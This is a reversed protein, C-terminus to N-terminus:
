SRAPSPCPTVDAAAPATARGAFARNLAAHLILVVAVSVYGDILYHWGLLASTVIIVAVYAFGALGAIRNFERLFLANMMAMGVHLSPFASIGTGLGAAGELYNQWLYDQFASVMRGDLGQMLAGFRAADGTVQGYFAPGASLFLCAVLNGLVSWVLVFTLCYRLRLRDTQVLVFFIPLFALATWAVSYNWELASLLQPHSFLDMLVPGPDVGGHLLADLDAQARDHAFGGMLTPMLTKFTTFSGMFLLIAALATAAGALRGLLAPTPRAIWARPTRPDRLAGAIVTVLLLLAPLGVFYIPGFQGVYDRYARASVEAHWAVLGLVVASHALVFAYFPLMQRIDARLSRTFANWM